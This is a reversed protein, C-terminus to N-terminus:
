EEIDGDSDHGHGAHGDASGPQLTGQDPGEHEHLGDDDDDDDDDGHTAQRYYSLDFLGGARSALRRPNQPTEFGGMASRLAIVNYLARRDLRADDILGTPGVNLAYIKEALARPTNPLTMLLQIAEEQNAPDMAWTHGQYYARVFRVAVERNATLWVNRASAVSGLYPNAIDTVAGLENMGLDKARVYSDANLLTADITGAKLANLRIPTGGVVVVRYDVGPKMGHLGLLAYLVYAFGSDPADVGIRAGRLSEYTAFPARSIVSLGVGLDAGFLMKLDLQQGIANNPNVSYNVPNDPSSFAVDTLGDRVRQFMQVSSKVQFTNLTLNQGAFFGKSQAAMLPLSTSFFGVNVTAPAPPPAPAADDAHARAGSLCLGVVLAAHASRRIFLRM